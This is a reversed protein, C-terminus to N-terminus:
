RAQTRAVNVAASATSFKAECTRGDSSCQPRVTRLQYTQRAPLRADCDGQSQPQTLPGSARDAIEDALARPSLREGSTSRVGRNIERLEESRTNMSGEILETRSDMFILCDSSISCIKAWLTLLGKHRESEIPGGSV